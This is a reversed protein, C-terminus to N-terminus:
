KAARAHRMDSILVCCRKDQVQIDKYTGRDEEPLLEPRRNWFDKKAMFHLYHVDILWLMVDIVIV